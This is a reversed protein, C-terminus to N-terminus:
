LKKILASVTNAEKSEGYFEIQFGNFQYRMTYIDTFEPDQSFSDPMGLKASIEDFTDTIKVGLIEQQGELFIESAIDENNFLIMINEFVIETAFTDKPLEPDIVPVKKSEQKTIKEVEALPKGLLSLTPHNEAYAKVVGKKAQDIDPYANENVIYTGWTMQEPDNVSKMKIYYIDKNIYNEVKYPDKVETKNFLDVLLEVSDYYVKGTKSHVFDIVPAGGNVMHQFAYITHEGVKAERLFAVTYETKTLLEQSLVRMAEEQSLASASLTPSNGGVPSDVDKSGGCGTVLMTIGILMAVLSKKM